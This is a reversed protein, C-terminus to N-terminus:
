RRARTENSSLDSIDWLRVFEDKGASVLTRGDPSISVSWVDGTHGRLTLAETEALLDWVKVLKDGSGSILYRGDPSTTMSIVSMGEGHGTFSRALKGTIVDWINIKGDDGGTYATKSDPSFSLGLVRGNHGGLVRHERRAQVDWLRPNGDDGASLIWRGDPSFVANWVAGKHGLFVQLEHDKRADRLRVAGDGNATVYAKGDPAFSLALIADSGQQQRHDWQKSPDAADWWHMISVYGSPSQEAAYGYSVIQRGDPSYPAGRVAETNGYKKLVVASKLDYLSFRAVPDYYTSNTLIGKGDPAFTAWTVGDKNGPFLRVLRTQEREQVRQRAESAHRGYPWAGVYENWGAILNEADAKAWATEDADAVSTIPEATGPTWVLPKIYYFGILGVVLLAVAGLALAAVMPRHPGLRENKLTERVKEVLSEADRGFQANRVEVANRRVLPRLPEPLEEARPIHAGDVIVPIVRIDRALAAAIEVAVFDDPIELRRRGSDDKADLWRSGIIVLFVDCGAVQTNLHSVFDVGAPIHDVDMFLNKRGFSQALRDHLRGATGISDDRRYNIFIKGAM